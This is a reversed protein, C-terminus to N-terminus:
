PAAKRKKTPANVMVLLAYEIGSGVSAWHENHEPFRWSAAEVTKLQIRLKKAVARKFATATIPAAKAKTM